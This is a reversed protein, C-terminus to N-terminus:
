LQTVSDTLFDLHIIEDEDWFETCDDHDKSANIRPATKAKLPQTM